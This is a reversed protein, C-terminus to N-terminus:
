EPAAEALYGAFETCMTIAKEEPDYFANPEGCAEIRVEVPEPLVFQANLDSIEDRMTEFTLHILPDKSAEGKLQLSAGGGEVALEDMVSSWSNYALEFEEECGALRDEPLELEEAIDEREEFSAGVFLCITTYFRQLDPGHTDWYAVEETLEADSLFSFATDYMIQVAAEEEFFEHVLLISLVDAADEEQGFIRLDMVDILAHGLEHYFIALLNSAVYGDVEDDALAITPLLAVLCALARMM